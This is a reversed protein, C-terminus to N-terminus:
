RKRSFYVTNDPLNVALVDHDRRDFTQHVRLLNKIGNVANIVAIGKEDLKAHVLNSFEKTCFRKPPAIFESNLANTKEAIDVMIIDFYKDPKEKLYEIGDNVIIKLNTDEEFNFYQRGLKLINEDIDM